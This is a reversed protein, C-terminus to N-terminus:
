TKQSRPATGLIADRAMLQRLIDIGNGRLALAQEPMTETLLADLCELGTRETNEQLRQLLLATLPNIELFSVRDNRDRVLLLLTPVEPATEPRHGPGIRHVPFRYGFPWALPSVVPVGEAPDGAPDHAIADIEHDDLSLALEAWEYHALELLFPPDGMEATQRAELYRLFERPLEPFLPTHSRHDRYFGRTLDSWAADDHLMRIVPFNAALLGEVNSYFLETYVRMRAPDVGPPMPAGEPDRIYAAFRYQLDHTTASDPPASM